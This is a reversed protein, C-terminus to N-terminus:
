TATPNTGAVGIIMQAARSRLTMFDSARLKGRRVPNSYGFLESLITLVHPCATDVDIATLYGVHECDIEVPLGCLVGINPVYRTKRGIKAFAEVPNPKVSADQWKAAPAWLGDSKPYGPAKGKIKVYKPQTDNHPITLLPHYGIDYLLRMGQKALDREWGAAAKPEKISNV